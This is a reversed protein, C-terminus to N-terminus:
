HTKDWASKGCLVCWGLASIWMSMKWYWPEMFQVIIKGEYEKPVTFQIVNNAGNTIKWENGEEDIVHYGYYNYLPVEVCGEARGSKCFLEMYNGDRYILEAKEMNTYTIKNFTENKNTGVLLYEDGAGISKTDLEATDYIFQTEMKSCYSSSFACMLLVCIGCIGGCLVEKPMSKLHKPMFVLIEGLLLTQFVMAIEIYRWPFQIQTFYNGIKGSHALTDWPFLDSAAFLFFMSLLTFLKMRGSAKGYAWIIVACILVAMLLLGPTMCFRDKVLRAENGFINAWFSFYQAIYVGRTGILNVSDVRENINVYLRNYYDLFPVWFYCSFILTELIALVYAGAVKKKTKRILVLCLLLLATCVMETSLIHCGIIGTMGLALLLINKHYQKWGVATETYIGYVAAAVMPLFMMATFEGVAMRIYINEIRYSATVYVFALVLSIDTRKFIKRFCLNSFVVTGINIMVVYAKLCTTVPFGALRLLAPLYLLIDGYYISTPYGYGEMLLSQIRAPFNGRRLEEAIGEIRMLHFNGDHGNNMGYIFLPMSAFFSIGLLLFLYCRKKYIVKHFVYFSDLLTFFVFLYVLGRKLQNNNTEICIDKIKFSGAGNYKVVVELNDIDHAIEFDYSLESLNANLTVMNAKIFYTNGDNAYIQIGQNEDCEYSIKLTYGGSEISIYPGFILDVRDTIEDKEVSWMNKEENFIIYQSQWQSLETNLRVHPMQVIINGFVALIVAEIIVALPIIVKRNKSLIIDMYKRIMM